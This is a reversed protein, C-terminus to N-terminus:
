AGDSDMMTGDVALVFGDAQQCQDQIAATLEPAHQVDDVHSTVLKNVRKTQDAAAATREARLRCSVLQTM